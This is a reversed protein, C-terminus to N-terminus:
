KLFRGLCELLRNNEDGTRVAIRSFRGDLGMFSACDRVLIRHPLLREKLERSTM